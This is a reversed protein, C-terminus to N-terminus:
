TVPEAAHSLPLARVPQPRPNVLFSVQMFESYEPFSLAASSKYRGRKEKEELAGGTL